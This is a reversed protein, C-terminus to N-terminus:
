YWGQPEQRDIGIERQPRDIALKKQRVSYLYVHIFRFIRDVNGWSFM